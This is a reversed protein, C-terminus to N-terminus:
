EIGGCMDNCLDRHTENVTPLTVGSWDGLGCMRKVYSMMFTTSVPKYLSYYKKLESITLRESLWSQGFSGPFEEIRDELEKVLNDPPTYKFGVNIVMGIFFGLVLMGIGLAWKKNKDSLEIEDDTM